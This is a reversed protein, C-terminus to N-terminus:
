RGTGAVRTFSIAAGAKLPLSILESEARYRLAFEEASEGPKHAPVSWIGVSSPQVLDAAHAVADRIGRAVYIASRSATKGDEFLLMAPGELGLHWRAYQPPGDDGHPVVLQPPSSVRKGVERAAFTVAIEPAMPYEGVHGLPIGLAFVENGAESPYHLVGNELRLETAWASVAVSLEPTGTNSCMTVLWWPGYPRRAPAVVDSPPPTFPSSAYLSRGCAKLGTLGIDAGRQGTLTRYHLHAFKKVWASALAAAQAASLEEYPGEQAPMGLDIMGADNLLGLAEGTLAAAVENALPLTQRPLGSPGSCGLMLPALLAPFGISRVFAFIQHRGPPCKKV